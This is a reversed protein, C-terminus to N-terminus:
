GAENGRDLPEVAWWYGCWFGLTILLGVALEILLNSLFSFESESSFFRFMSSIFSYVVMSFISVTSLFLLSDIPRLKRSSIQHVAVCLPIMLVFFLASLFAGIWRFDNNMKHSGYESISNAVVTWNKTMNDAGVYYGLYILPIWLLLLFYFRRQMTEKLEQPLLDVSICKEGSVFMVLFAGFTATTSPYFTVNANLVPTMKIALTLFYAPIGAVITATLLCIIKQITDTKIHSQWCLVAMFVCVGGVFFVGIFDGLKIASSLLFLSAGLCYVLVDVPEKKEIRHVVFCLMALVIVGGFLLMVNSFAAKYLIEPYRLIESAIFVFIIWLVKIRIDWKKAAFFNQLM